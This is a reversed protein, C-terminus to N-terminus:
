WLNYQFFFNVIFFVWAELSHDKQQVNDKKFCDKVDIKKLHTGKVCCKKQNSPELM